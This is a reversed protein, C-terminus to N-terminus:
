LLLNAKLYPHFLLHPYLSSAIGPGTGFESLNSTSYAGWMYLIRYGVGLIKTNMFLYIIFIGIYYILFFYILNILYHNM